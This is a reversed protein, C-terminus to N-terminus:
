MCGVPMGNMLRAHKRVVCSFSERDWEKIDMALVALDFPKDTNFYGPNRTQSEGPTDNALPLPSKAPVPRVLEYDDPENEYPDDYGYYDLVVDRGGPIEEDPDANKELSFACGQPGFEDDEEANYCTPKGLKRRRGCGDFDPRYYDYGVWLSHPKTSTNWLDVYNTIHKLTPDKGAQLSSRRLWGLPVFRALVLKNSLQESSPAHYRRVDEHCHFAVRQNDIQPDSAHVLCRFEDDRQGEILDYDHDLTDMSRFLTYKAKRDECICVETFAQDNDVAHFIDRGELSLLIKILYRPGKIDSPVANRCSTINNHSWTALMPIVGESYSVLLTSVITVASNSAM